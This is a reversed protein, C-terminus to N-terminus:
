RLVQKRKSFGENEYLNIENIYEPNQLKLSDTLRSLMQSTTNKHSATLLVFILHNMAGNPVQKGDKKPMKHEGLLQTIAANIEEHSAMRNSVIECLAKTKADQSLKETEKTFKQAEEEEIKKREKEVQKKAKQYAKDKARREAKLKELEEKSRFKDMKGQKKKDLGLMKYVKYLVYFIIAVILGLQIALEKENM